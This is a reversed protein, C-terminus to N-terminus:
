SGSIISELMRTIRSSMRRTVDHFYNDGVIERCGCQL